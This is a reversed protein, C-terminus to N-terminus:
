FEPVSATSLQAALLIVKGRVILAVHFVLLPVLCVAVAATLVFSAIFLWPQEGPQSGRLLGLATVGQM